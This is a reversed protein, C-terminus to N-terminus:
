ELFEIKKVFSEAVGNGKASDTDIAIGIGTIDPAERGFVRTFLEAIPVETTVPIDPRPRDVCIYRGGAHYYRGKYPVNIPGSECLFLGIFYPSDPILISGSSHHEKGFFVYVMIAESRIGKDYSAGSPFVHIGWEIRVRSYDPVSVAELLIAHAHTKTHLVLEDKSAIYVVKKANNADQKPQFGKSGLWNLVSDGSFGTFEISFAVSEGARCPDAFAIIVTGLIASIVLSWKAAM